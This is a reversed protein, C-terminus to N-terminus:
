LICPLLDPWVGKARGIRKKFTKKTIKNIAKVQGNAQPHYPEAFCMKIGLKSCFEKFSDCDFQKGNDMVLVYPVGFRCIINKWIFNQTQLTTISTLPEAKVWKTNYEVCVVAHTAKNTGKPMPRIFDIGWISFPVLASM